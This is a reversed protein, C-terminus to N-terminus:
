IDSNLAVADFAPCEEIDQQLCQVVVKTRSEKKM